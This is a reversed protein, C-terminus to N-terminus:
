VTWFISFATRGASACGGAASTRRAPFADDIQAPCVPKPETNM